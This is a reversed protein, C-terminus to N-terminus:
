DSDRRGVLSVSSRYQSSFMATKWRKVVSSIEAAVPIVALSIEAARVLNWNSPLLVGRRAGPSGSRTRGDGASAMGADAKQFAGQTGLAFVCPAADERGPIVGAIHNDIHGFCDERVEAQNVQGM